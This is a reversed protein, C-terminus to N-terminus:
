HSMVISIISVTVYYSLSLYNYCINKIEKANQLRRERKFQIMKVETITMLVQCSLNTLLLTM